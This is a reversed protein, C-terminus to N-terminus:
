SQSQIRLLFGLLVFALALVVLHPVLLSTHDGTQPIPERSQSQAVSPRVHEGAADTPRNGPSPPRESDPEPESEPEPEVAPEEEVKDHAVMLSTEGDVAMVYAVTNLYTHDVLEERQVASVDVAYVAGNVEYGEPPRTERLEWTVSDNVDPLAAALGEDETSLWVEGAEFTALLTDGARLEFSAGELTTGLDDVALVSLSGQEVVAGRKFQEMLAPSQVPGETAGDVGLDVVETDRYRELAIHDDDITVLTASGSSTLYGAVLSTYYINSTVGEAKPRAPRERVESPDSDSEALAALEKEYEEDIVDFESVDQGAAQLALSGYAGESATADIQVEMMGGAGFYFENRNVSHNHGCLFLVNRTVSATADASVIGEVGTAAYNLAENWYLAGQNDGRLSQMPMHSVVIIPITPDIGDVWAKFAAAADASITGGTKMENFAIAYVYYATSGDDNTGEFIPCPGYGDVCKMIDAGGDDAAADHSAWIISVNSSGLHPFVAQIEGLIPATQYSPTRDRGSGAMDGILSVYEVDQPMGGMASQISGETSHYDSAFALHHVEGEGALARVPLGCM